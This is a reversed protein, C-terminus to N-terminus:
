AVVIQGNEGVDVMSWSEKDPTFSYICEGNGYIGCDNKVFMYM